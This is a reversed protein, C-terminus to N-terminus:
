LMDHPTERKTKDIQHETNKKYTYTHSKQQKSFREGTIKNFIQGVITVQCEEKEDIEMM